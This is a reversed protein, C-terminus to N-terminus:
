RNGAATCAAALEGLSSFTWDPQVERGPPLTAGWGERGGRRDIWVTPLGLRKAPIHDHYLSQAVHLLHGTEIGLTRTAELLAHFNRTAPKYSGVDQATVIADFRVGLKLNSTEFSGRDVNSLIILKYRSALTALAHPVDPFAPWDPVSRALRHSEASTVEAGIDDGLDHMTASLIEPYLTSPSGEEQRAEAAAFRELLEDASLEVGHRAAWRTLVASIGSEWDILTGYCDFSMAEFDSLNV